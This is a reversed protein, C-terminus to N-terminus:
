TRGYNNARAAAVARALPSDAASKGAESSAWNIEADSKKYGSSNTNGKLYDEVTAATQATPYTLKNAYFEAGTANRDLGSGPSWNGSTRMGEDGYQQLMKVVEDRSLGGKQIADNMNAIWNNWQAQTRNSDGSFGSNQLDKIMPYLGSVLQVAKTRANHRQETTKAVKQEADSINANRADKAGQVASSYAASSAAQDATNKDKAILGETSQTGGKINRQLLGALGGNDGSKAADLLANQRNFNTDNISNQLGINGAQTAGNAAVNNVNDHSYANNIATVADGILPNIDGNQAHAVGLSPAFRQLANADLNAEGSSYQGGTNMNGNVSQNLLNQSQGQSALGLYGQINPAQSTIGYGTQSTTKYVGQGHQPQAGLMTSVYQPTQGAQAKPKQAAVAGYQQGQPAVTRPQAPKNAQNSTPVKGANFQEQFSTPAKNTSSWEGYIDNRTQADISNPDSIGYNSSLYDNFGAM